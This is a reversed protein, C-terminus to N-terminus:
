EDVHRLGTGCRERLNASRGENGSEDFQAFRGVEERAVARALGGGHEGFRALEELSREGRNRADVVAVAGDFSAERLGFGEREAFEGGRAAVLLEACAAYFGTAGGAVKGQAGEGAADVGQEDLEHRVAHDGGHSRHLARRSTEDSGSAVGAFSSRAGAVGLSTVRIRVCEVDAAVQTRTVGFAFHELQVVARLDFRRFM